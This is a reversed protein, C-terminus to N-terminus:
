DDIRHKLAGQANELRAAAHQVARRRFEKFLFRQLSAVEFDQDVSHRLFAQPCNSRRSAAIREKEKHSFTARMCHAGSSANDDCAATRTSRLTPLPADAGHGGRRECTTIPPCASGTM